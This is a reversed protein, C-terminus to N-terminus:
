ICEATKPTGNKGGAFDTKGNDKDWVIWCPAPPLDYYNGGFIVQNKSIRRFELIYEPALKERDWAYHGFDTTTALCDRTSNKENSEGIGYPPDTLVLDVCKDPWERMVELCDGCLIQNLPLTM